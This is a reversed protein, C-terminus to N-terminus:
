RRSTSNRVELKLYVVKADADDAAGAVTFIVVTCTGAEPDYASVYGHDGAAGLVSVSPFLLSGAPYLHSRDLVLDYDGEGARTASTVIGTCATGNGGNAGTFSGYILKVETEPAQVPNYNRNAM